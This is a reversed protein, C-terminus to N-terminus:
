FTLDMHVLEKAMVFGNEVTKSTANSLLKPLMSEVTFALMLLFTKSTM